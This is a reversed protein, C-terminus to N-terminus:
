MVPFPFVPTPPPFGEAAKHAPGYGLIHNLTIMSRLAHRVSACNLFTSGDGKQCTWVPSEFSFVSQALARISRGLNSAHWAYQENYKAYDLHLFLCCLTRQLTCCLAAHTQRRPMSRSHCHSDCLHVDVQTDEKASGPGYPYMETHCLKHLNLVAICTWLLLSTRVQAFFRLHTGQSM